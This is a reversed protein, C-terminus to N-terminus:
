SKAGDIREFARMDKGTRTASLFRSAVDSLRPPMPNRVDGANLVRGFRLALFLKLQARDFPQRLRWVRPLGRVCEALGQAVAKVRRELVARITFHSLQWFVEALVRPFPYHMLVMWVTNRACYRLIKDRSRNTPSVRHQVLIESMYYIKWGKKVARMSYEPEEGYYYFFDAYGGVQRTVAVRMMHACGSFLHSYRAKDREVPATIPERSTHVQFTLIGLDDESQFRKVARWIDDNDTFFSDDDLSILFEGKVLTFSLSRSAILGLNKENRYVRAGPWEQEVLAQIPEPSNDDIVVLELNPYTQRRLIQLTARLEDGRNYTTIVISVLPCPSNMIM